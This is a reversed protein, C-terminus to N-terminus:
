LSDSDDKIFKFNLNGEKLITVLEPNIYFAKSDKKPLLINKNRLRKVYNNTMFKDKNLIKRLYERSDINVELMDNDMLTSIIDMELNSLELNFNLIMLISKYYARGKQKIEYNM